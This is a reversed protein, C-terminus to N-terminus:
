LQHGFRRKEIKVDQAQAQEKLRKIEERRSKREETKAKAAIKQKNTKPKTQPMNDQYTQSEFQNLHDLPTLHFLYFYKLEKFGKQFPL